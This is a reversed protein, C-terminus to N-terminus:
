WLEVGSLDMIPRVEIPGFRTDPFRSAIELAREHSECEIVFFGALQEKSEAYPGDTIAPVGNADDRITKTMAPEALAGSDILEGSENIENLLGDIQGIMRTREEDTLPGYNLFMPHNWNKPNSYILIVYRVLRGEPEPTGRSVVTQNDPSGAL